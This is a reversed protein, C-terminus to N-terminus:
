EQYGEGRAFEGRLRAPLQAAIATLVVRCAERDKEDVELNLNVQLLRPAGFSLRFEGKEECIGVPTFPFGMEALLLM